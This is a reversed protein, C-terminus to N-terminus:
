SINKKNSAIPSFALRNFHTMGLDVGWAKERLAPRILIIITYYRGNPPKTTKELNM